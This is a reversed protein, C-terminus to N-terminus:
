EYLIIGESFHTIKDVSCAHKDVNRFCIEIIMCYKFCFDKGKLYNIISALTTSTSVDIYKQTSKTEYVTCM